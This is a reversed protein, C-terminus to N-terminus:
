NMKPEYKEQVSAQLKEMPQLRASKCAESGCLARRTGRTAPLESLDGFPLMKVLNPLVSSCAKTIM